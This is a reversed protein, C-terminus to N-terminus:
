HMEGAFFQMQLVASFVTQTFRRNTQDDFTLIRSFVLSGTVNEALDTEGNFNVSSRGNDALRVGRNGPADAAPDSASFVFSTTTSQQYGLRTRLSNGRTTFRRPIPFTKGLELSVDRTEAETSSGPRSDDRRTLSFGGSTSVGLHSFVASPLLRYSRVRNAGHQDPADNGSPRFETAKTQVYEASLGVSTFVGRLFSPSSNWRLSVNPFSVNAGDVVGQTDDVRRTWNRTGARQYRSALLAGFPLAFSANISLQSALGASTAPRGRVSRFADAGGFPLQYGLGPTFPVGDFASLLSRNYTVDVPQLVGAIRALRSSDGAYQGVARSVDVSVATSFTQSNSLRRPLRFAGTSDANERLLQRSNPDKLMTYSTGLDVRPRLWSALVPAVSIGSNMTRERELGLDMGLLRDREATAIPAVDFAVATTDGLRDRYDRLDRLSSVDWRLAIAGFPRLEVASGNRWLNTLGRVVRATDTVSEAPKTFSLRRDAARALASTLRFQTPTWRFGTNRMARVVEADQLWRPLHMIARDLFGLRQVRAQAALNYDLGVTFSTAGGEQYESQQDASSYTSNLALNNVIPALWGGRLPTARRVGLSYSTASRRPARLGGIGGGLLDSQSLFYPDSSSSAHSVTFPLALGLSQPLLRELHVSTALDLDNDTVFSPQEALQRFNPDRRTVNVRVDALDGAVVALGIQGAYGPTDVVDTLRIDDVWLELSDQAPLIPSPGVGSDVRVMGVALEQVGALNPPTTGPDASYVMYGDACAVYRRATDGAAAPPASRDILARDVGSCGGYRDGRQLYANQLQARLDFFRRFDVRVDTWSAKGRGASVPARYFYFNNADRGVKVFFQLEGGQGWGNGRGKAWVRLAQYTMFSRQGEPFRYYAEARDFTRLGGAQLRLSRENIQVRNAELGTQQQEPADTVGPPSEYVLTGTSDQTGILGAAVFSAPLAAGEGAIGQLASESRKLWPAGVLRLRAISLQSFQDDPLAAASIMTLRLSKVHRRSPAGLSDFPVRFPVRVNVWCLRRPAGGGPPTRLECRGVRSYSSDAGLDVVYRLLSEADRQDYRLNLQADLDLDEEDLRNDGVTCNARSDGLPQLTVNGGRCTPFDREEVPTGGGVAANSVRIRPAVDGPLGKDDTTVDFGRSIANRETNMTDLGAIQKGTYLSDVGLAGAEQCGVCLRTPSFAISNESLDGFDFVVTPNFRRGTASTDVLSWFELTEVRSLDSGTAGLSTRISRWRRGTPADDVLWRYRADPGPARLGGVKLPYLTLWLLQEPSVIGNGAINVLPDIQNITRVVATGNADLGNNQWALTAAHATDLVLGSLRAQLTGAAPQSGYYWAPDSLLVTTGGEGEFSEVYAQGASNPRPRSTAFEGTVDIRSPAATTAFPLRQLARSLADADFSFAGSVGAVLSSAPEFGLPPRNFTTRQSQSIATFNLTGNTMPFQSAFGFIATPAAAFLPNEEYQVTVQRPTAFLTDPRLFTVQGLEYDVTYDVDRKLPVGNIALRESNRSVQVSGLTLTGADGGGTAQYRARIHYVSQPHRTSILDESPTAYITDNPVNGQAVLGSEVGAGAAGATGQRLAFPRLSPFVLFNDKILKGGSGGLQSFNPDSPRPWLRNDIDFASANTAQALQFMQLYTDFGGGLPKEQDGGAGTVIRVSVTGRQIDEGGFRYVSRIEKFFASDGPVVLPDYILNAFQPASTFQLDPTGGPGSRDRGGARVNYAVVLRESNLSLPRVLAIWLQSPDVYYDVGERLLEYVPGRNQGSRSGRVIFQPGNPNQPQEGFRLRYLYVKTPRVSDPLQAAAAAMQQGNLIDVNPYRSFLRPDVTFFFRRAEIKYDELDLDVGQLTRDGVTFVRDKVVNGKQQAVITRFHMPGVQGIAQVGYNGSPIGGTIFRSPPPAFSVNGVELRQLLEDPRGEYYVSINNSADFERQSDYDVNVHVRDAVVGGTRVNFQFDFNPQFGGRCNAGNVFYLNSTCRENKNREMKTEIRTGLALDLDAYDGFLDVPADLSGARAATSDGAAPRDGTAGADGPAAPAAPAALAERAGPIPPPPPAPPRRSTTVSRGAAVDLPLPSAFAASTTRGWLAGLLARTRAELADALSDARAEVVAATASDAAAGDAGADRPALRGFPSLPPLPALRFAGSDDVFPRARVGVGDASAAAAPTQARLSAPALACAVASLAAALVVLSPSSRM